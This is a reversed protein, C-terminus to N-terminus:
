YTARVALQLKAFCECVISWRERCDAITHEVIHRLSSGSHEIQLPTIAAKERLARLLGSSRTTIAVFKARPFYQLVSAVFDRAEVPEMEKGPGAITPELERAIAILKVRVPEFELRRKQLSSAIELLRMRGSESYFDPIAALQREVEEFMEIYNGHVGLLDNFLPSLIDQFTKQLREAKYKRLEILRDLIKLLVEIM